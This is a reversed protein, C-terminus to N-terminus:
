HRMGIITSHLVKYKVQIPHPVQLLIPGQRNTATHPHIQPVCRIVVLLRTPIRPEADALRRDIQGTIAQKSRSFKLWTLSNPKHRYHPKYSGSSISLFPSWPTKPLDPHWVPHHCCFSTM